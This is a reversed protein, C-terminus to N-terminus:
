EVGQRAAELTAQVVGMRDKGWPLPMVVPNEVGADVYARLAAAVGDRDGMIDIGDVMEDSIASVAGDRDGAAHAERVARVSDGYGANEFAKAYADVVAYSFLDRKAYELGDAREVVGLHVYAHITCSGPARNARAEGERVREVCWPVLTSPLYNLLVGDCLEGALRLMKENLAAIVIQPRKDGMRVGLRSRSLSYFDGEHSVAEGSLCERLVTVFERVQALPRDTYPVGHWRQTVVPSSIGVGIYIDNDPHAAQLTAGAMATLMPTRLQLALVGTGLSLSPAAEGALMLHSFAEAGTTEAVWFSSYGLDEARRAVEPAGTIGLSPLSAYTVGLSTV